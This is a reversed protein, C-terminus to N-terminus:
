DEDPLLVTAGLAQGRPVISVKYLPAL